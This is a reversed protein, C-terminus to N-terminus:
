KKSGISYDTEFAKSVLQKKDLRRPNHKGTSSHKCGIDELAHSIIAFTLMPVAVETLCHVEKPRKPNKEGAKM